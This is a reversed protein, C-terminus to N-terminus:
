QTEVFTKFNNLISQWGQQQQEIPYHSEADFTVRVTVSDESAKSFEVEVNRDGLSYEILQNEVIKTYTGAFDFGMSGNKAEMRSSFSGGVRLDVKATTTHWDDSAANWQKIDEATTYARWVKEIPALITAEVSIKM